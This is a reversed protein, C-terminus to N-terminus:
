PAPMASDAAALQRQHERAMRVTAYTSYRPLWRALGGAAGLGMVGTVVIGLGLPAFGAILAPILPGLANGSDSLLRWLSLFTTRDGPPAVDSGITMMIGSGIGNGFSMVIASVGLLVIGHSAPLLMMGIGLFLMAPVAVALRGFRDMVHGAPYFLSMDVANAVGFILSTETASMGIHGAWLPLVTQRAGRVAGVLLVAVGLTWFLDKHATYMASVRSQDEARPRDTAEEEDPVTLLLVGVCLTAAIAVGFAARAGWLGIAVAAIFPGLFLGVRHAGALTSLARARLDVRVVASVYTQRALYFTANCAGIILQAVTMAWLEPVAWNLGLALGTVAAAVMMARRDGLKNALWAAPVDGLIRGIGSLSLMLGAIATSAGEDIAILALVPAIAGNGVEYILAPLLASPAIRRLM